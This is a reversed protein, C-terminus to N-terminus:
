ARRHARDSDQAAAPPDDGSLVDLTADGTEIEGLAQLTRLGLMRGLPRCDRPHDFDKYTVETMDGGTGQLFLAM